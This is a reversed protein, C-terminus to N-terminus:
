VGGPRLHLDGVTVLKEVGDAQLIKLNGEASVGLLIGNITNGGSNSLTVPEGKFALREQWAQIFEPSGVQGRREFFAQLVDHLLQWRDVPSGLEEEICTAPFQVQDAPPVSASAVNIGVGIVVGHVQNDQWVSEALIGCTKRFRILVDNPWKIQVPLQLNGIAQAVALGALPSFLALQGAEKASPRIVLSFALASGPHTVWSRGLRGRGKVQQDAIVVSGDLADDAAWALAEDNTSGISNFYRIQPVPLGTLVQRIHELQM